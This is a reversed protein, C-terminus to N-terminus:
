RNRDVIRKVQRRFDERYGEVFETKSSFELMLAFIADANEYVSDGEVNEVLIQLRQQLRQMDDVSLGSYSPNFTVNGWITPIIELVNKWEDHTMSSPPRDALLWITAKQREYLTFWQRSAWWHRAIPYATITLATVSFTAIFQRRSIM